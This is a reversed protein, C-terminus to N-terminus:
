ADTGGLSLGTITVTKGVGANKDAFAGVGGTVTLNDGSIEGSFTAANTNLTASTKGDYVKSAATFGSVSGIVAKSIDATTTATTSSFTYNGADTGGLSLGSISVTKGVGVNKDAFTGTGGNLSLIDGSIAGTLRATGTNLTASTKGDYVKSAATIGSVGSITAKSITLTGGIYAIEYDASTLGGPTINYSGVNVAGQSNGGYSVAGGLVAASEGNVFGSYSVGNGGSYLVRDYGKSANNASVTLSAPTINGINGSASTPWSYNSLVTGNGLSFDSTTLSTSVLMGQGVSPSAYNGTTKTVTASDTNVFGSLQFNGPGLTAATSGDYTKSVAGTLSANVPIVTLQTPNVTYTQATGVSLAFPLATGLSSYQLSYQRAATNSTIPWNAYNIGANAITAATATDASDLGRLTYGPTATPNSGFTSSLSGGFNADVYLPSAYVFGSGNQPVSGQYATNYQYLTPVMGNPVISPSPAYVLWRGTSAPALVGAGLNNTFTTGTVVNVDGGTSTVQSGISVAGDAKLLVSGSGGAISSFAPVTIDGGAASISVGNGSIGGSDVSTSISGTNTVNIAGSTSFTNLTVPVQNRLDINASTGTVGATPASASISAASSDLSIALAGTAVAGAQSTLSLSNAKVNLGTSNNDGISTKATISVQGSGTDLLGVAVSGSTSMYDITGGATQTSVTSGGLTGMSISGGSASVTGTGSAAINANQLVSAGRLLLNKNAPLVIDAAVTTTGSYNADGSGLELRTGASLQTIGPLYLVSGPDTGGINMSRASSLPQIALAGASSIATGTAPLTLTDTKVTLTGAGNILGGSPLSVSGASLVASTTAQANVAATGSTLTLTRLDANAGLNLTGSDSISAQGSTAGNLAGSLTATSTGSVTLTGGLSTAGAVTLSSGTGSVTVNGQLNSTGAADNVTLAGGASISLHNNSSSHLSKISQTSNTLNVTVGSVLNLYAVDNTGPLTDLTWNVPNTWDTSGGGGDWCVGACSLGTDTLRYAFAPPASVIAGNIGNPLVSQSFSGSATTARIVDFNFGSSSAFNNIFSGTLTGGLTASGTVQLSDYQSGQTTGGIEINLNSGTALQLDGNVSLTGAANKGGPELNGQNVLAAASTGVAITGSGSLTGTNTFGSTKSFTAGGAVAITGSQTLAGNVSLTGSNANITGSNNFSSSGTLTTVGSSSKTVTAGLQNNFVFSGGSCCTDWIQNNLINFQGGALNNFTAAHGPTRQQATGNWNVVGSNNFITPSGTPASSSPAVTNSINYTAGSNVNLTSIGLGGETQTAVGGTAVSLTGTGSLYGGSLNLTRVAATGNVNLSGGSINIQGSSAGSVAGSLTVSGSGSVGLTGDLTTTGSVTLGGGSVQLTERNVLSAAVMAGSSGTVTFAGNPRDIVVQDTSVPAKQNTWNAAANWNGDADPLWANINSPAASASLSLWALTADYQPLYAFGSPTNVTGFTGSRSGAQVVNYADTAGPQYSGSKISNLTGGLTAIGSVTLKDHETSPVLGGIEIDISGSNTLNGTINLQGIKGAGGPRITGQNVLTGVSLNIYGDGQIIGGAPNTFGASRAFTGGSSVSITGNNTFNTASANLTGTSASLTGGNVLTSPQVTFTQGSVNAFIGGNNALTFM